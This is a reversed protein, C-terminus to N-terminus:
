EFISWIKHYKYAQYIQPIRQQIKPHRFFDGYFMEYCELDFSPNWLFARSNWGTYFIFTKYGTKSAIELYM